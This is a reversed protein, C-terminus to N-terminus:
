NALTYTNTTNVPTAFFTMTGATEGSIPVGRALDYVLRGSRAASSDHTREQDPLVFTHSTETVVDLTVTEPTFGVLTFRVTATSTQEATNVERVVTWETGIGVPVDPLRLWHEPNQTLASLARSENAEASAAGSLTRVLANMEFVNEDDDNDPDAGSDYGTDVSELLLGSTTTGKPTHHMTTFVIPDPDDLTRNQMTFTCRVSITSGPEPTLRLEQLPADGEAHLTLSEVFPAPPPPETCATVMTAAAIVAAARAHRM